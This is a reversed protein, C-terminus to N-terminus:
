IAGRERKKGSSTTHTVRQTRTLEFIQSMDAVGADGDRGVAERAGAAFMAAPIFILLHSM